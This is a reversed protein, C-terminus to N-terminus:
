MNGQLSRVFIRFTQPTDPASAMANLAPMYKAIIDSDNQQVQNMMLSDAGPGAGMDIGATIPEGPRETPAFLETVPGQAAAERVDGARAPRTDPTKSLPAGSKIAQTEVGESYATSGMQLNDTRTSYKGPGAPGALPNMMSVTQGGRIKRFRSDYRGL